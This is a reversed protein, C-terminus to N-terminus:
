YNLTVTEGVLNFTVRQLRSACRARGAAHGCLKDLLDLNWTLFPGLEYFFYDLTLFTGNTSPWESTEKNM